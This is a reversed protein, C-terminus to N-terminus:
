RLVWTVPFFLFSPLSLAPSAPFMVVGSLTVFASVMPTEPYPVLMPCVHRQSLRLRGLAAHEVIAGPLLLFHASASM